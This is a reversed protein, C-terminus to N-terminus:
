TEPSTEPSSKRGGLVDGAFVAVVVLYIEDDEVSACGENPSDAMM